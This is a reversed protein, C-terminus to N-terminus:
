LLHFQGPQRGLRLAAVEEEKSDAELSPQSGGEAKGEARSGVEVPKGQEVAKGLGVVMGEEAAKDLGVVKGVQQARDVQKWQNDEM